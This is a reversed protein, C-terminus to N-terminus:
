VSEHLLRQVDRAAPSGFTEFMRLAERLHQQALRDTQANYAEGLVRHARAQGLLNGTERHITLAQEGHAIADRARGQALEIQALVSLAEAEHQLETGSALAIANRARSQATELALHALDCLALGRTAHSHYPRLDPLSADEAAQEFEMRAAEIDGRALHCFGLENRTHSRLRPSDVQDALSRALVLQELADAYRGTDRYWSGRTYAVVCSKNPDDLRELLEEARDLLPSIQGLRGLTLLVHSLNALAPATAAPPLEDSIDLLRELADASRRLDGRRYTVNGLHLLTMAQRMTEAEAVQLALARELREAALDLEGRRESIVGAIYYCYGHISPDKAAAARTLMEHVLEDTVPLGSSSRVLCLEVLTIAIALPDDAARAAEAAEQVIALVEARRGRRQMDAVAGLALHWAWHALGNEVSVRVAAVINDFEAELWATAERESRFSWEPIDEPLSRCPPELRWPVLRAAAAHKGRYYWTCLRDLAKTRADTPEELKACHRAYDGLLDHFRYRGPAHEELLHAGTLSRILARATSSTTRGMAAAAEVTVDLGPMLGLLRFLRRADADLRQYSLDFASRVTAHQDDDLALVALGRERFEAVYDRISRWPEDALQAAAIRIALPLGACAEILTFAQEPEAEVRQSGLLRALLAVADEVPLVGLEIRHAGEQAMLGSLRGRSTVLTLCGPAGPLLPRVQVASAANDLLVLLKRGALLSRYQATAEEVTAPMPGQEAGLGRMLRELAEIPNLAPEPSHGRLDLYLQGDGFQDAARHAYRVALSTKGIGAMGTVLVLGAGDASIAARDLEDLESSRGLFAGPIPPLQSPTVPRADAVWSVPGRRELSARVREPGTSTESAIAPADTHHALADTVHGALEPAHRLVRQHLERLAPGPDSGLEDILRDHLLRYHALADAQRGCRYLALILQGALREDFPNAM